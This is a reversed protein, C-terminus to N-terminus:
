ERGPPSESVQTRSRWFTWSFGLGLDVNINNKYLPSEENEANNYVAVNAAGFVSIRRSLQKVVRLKLKTGLYGGNGSFVPREPTAFEPSVGYIYDMFKETSFIPGASVRLRTGNGWPDPHRLTLEPQFVVGRYDSNSFDTSFVARVPLELDIKMGSGGKILTYQMRPGFEVLYDLDPMGRRADNDDSDTPFSGSVSLDFELRDSPVYRGRVIGKGDNARLYRGRYVFYPLVIGHLHNQAAAPYDPVLGGGGGIGIEWLSQTKPKEAAPVTQPRFFLFCAVLCASIWPTKM